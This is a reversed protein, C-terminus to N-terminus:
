ERRDLWDELFATMNWDSTDLNFHNCFACMFNDLVWRDDATRKDLFELLTDGNGDWRFVVHNYIEMNDKPSIM